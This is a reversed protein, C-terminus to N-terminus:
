KFLNLFKMLKLLGGEKDMDKFFAITPNRMGAAVEKWVNSDVTIVLDPNEPIEPRIEAVGRRVHVTFAQGTDPFRFGAITDIEMSKEPNLKVTMANFIDELWQAQEPTLAGGASL